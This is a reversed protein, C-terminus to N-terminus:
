RPSSRSSRSRTAASTRSRRASDFAGLQILLAFAHALPLYLYTVDEDQILNVKQILNLVGRYNGHTLVCGKPPGTTGSTYIFTFPDDDGIAEYRKRLEAADVGRGRERLDDLAIADDAADDAEVVIVHKLDPLNGRVERVKALQAEDECVVAVSESNGLVWECEEPANTPYIPVVVLGASAIAFDAYTWEPRTNCLIAVRQGPEIGLAILGRGIESAIEWAESFTVDEWSGSQKHRVAVRDGFQEAAKAALDAISKSQTSTVSSSASAAM